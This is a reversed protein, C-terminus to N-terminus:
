PSIRMVGRMGVAPCTHPVSASAANKQHTFKPRCQTLKQIPMPVAAETSARSENQNAALEGYDMDDLNYHQNMYQHIAHLEMSRAKNLAEVVNAKRTERDSM